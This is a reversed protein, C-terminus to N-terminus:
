IMCQLFNDARLNTSFILISSDTTGFLVKFNLYIIVNQDFLVCLLELELCKVLYQENFSVKQLFLKKIKKRLTASFM